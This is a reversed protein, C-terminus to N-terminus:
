NLIKIKWQKTSCGFDNKDVEAVCLSYQPIEMKGDWGWCFIRYNGGVAGSVTLLLYPRKNKTLKTKVDTIVFWYLDKQDIEDISNIGRAALKEQLEDDVFMGTNFEGLVDVSAKALEMKSWESLDHTELLLEQFTNKGRESDKKTWKKIDSNRNILIEHMQNYTNFVKGDGILDM